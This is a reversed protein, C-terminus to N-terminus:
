RSRYCTRPHDSTTSATGSASTRSFMIAWAIQVTATRKWDPPQDDGGDSM